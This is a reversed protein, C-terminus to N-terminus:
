RTGQQALYFLGAFIIGGIVITLIQNNLLSATKIGPKNEDLFSEMKASTKKIYGIDNKMVAVDTKLRGVDTQLTKIEQSGEQLPANM